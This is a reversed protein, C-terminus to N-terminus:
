APHYFEKVYEACSVASYNFNENFTSRSSLFRSGICIVQDGVSFAEGTKGTSERPNLNLKEWSLKQGAIPFHM